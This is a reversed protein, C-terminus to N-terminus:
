PKIMWRATQAEFWQLFLLVLVTVFSIVIAVEYRGFGIAAGAGALVWVVAASTLGTVLGQRTIITGAGLFGIGTVVQGLVRTSDHPGVIGESLYVFTMTGLCILVGMRIDIPKKHFYRELGVTFGCLVSWGIKIWLDHDLLLALEPM